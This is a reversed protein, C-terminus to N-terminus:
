AEKEKMKLLRNKMYEKHYAKMREKVEPRQCYEKMYALMYEKRDAAMSKGM